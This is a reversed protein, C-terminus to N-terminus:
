VISLKALQDSCEAVGATLNLASYLALAEQLLPRAVDVDGTEVMLLALPRIANALDLVKTDLDHRYIAIAETLLTRAQDTLGSERYIDGLHRATHAIVLPDGLHRCLALADAYHRQAQDLRGRDREIQGLGVLAPILHKELGNSRSIEAAEQYARYADDLRQERRARVASAILHAADEPMTDGSTGNAATRDLNERPFGREIGDGM